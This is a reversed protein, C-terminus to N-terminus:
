HGRARWKKGALYSQHGHSAEQRQCVTPLYSSACGPQLTRCRRHPPPTWGRQPPPDKPRKGANCYQWLLRSPTEVWWGWAQKSLCLDFSVDFNRTVPRQSPFESTVPSNWCLLALLTSFTGNSSTLMPPCFPPRGGSLLTPQALTPGVNPHCHRYQALKPGVKM